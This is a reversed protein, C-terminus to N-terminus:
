SCHCGMKWVALCRNSGTPVDSAILEVEALARRLGFVGDEPFAAPGRLRWGCGPATALTATANPSVWMGEALGVHSHFIVHKRYKKIHFSVIFSGHEIAVQINAM